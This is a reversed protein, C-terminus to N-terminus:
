AVQLSIKLRKQSSSKVNCTAHLLFPAFAFSCSEIHTLSKCLPVSLARPSACEVHQFFIKKMGRVVQMRGMDEFLSKSIGGKEFGTFVTVELTANLCEEQLAGQKM